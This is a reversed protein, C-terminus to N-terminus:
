DDIIGGRIGPIKQREELATVLEAPPAHGQEALRTEAYRLAHAVAEEPLRRRTNAPRHWGFIGEIALASALQTDPARPALCVAFAATAADAIAVPSPPAARGTVLEPIPGRSSKRLEVEVRPNGVRDAPVIEFGSVSSLLDEAGGGERGRALAEAADRLRRRVIGLDDGEARALALAAFGLPITLRDPGEHVPWRGRRPELSVAVRDDPFINVTVRVLPARQLLPPM